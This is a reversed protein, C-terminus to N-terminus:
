SFQDSKLRLCGFDNTQKNEYMLNTMLPLITQFKQQLFQCLIKLVTSQFQIEKLCYSRYTILRNVVMKHLVLLDNRLLFNVKSVKTAGIVACTQSKRLVHVLLLVVHFTLVKMVLRFVCNNVLQFFMQKASRLNAVAFRM